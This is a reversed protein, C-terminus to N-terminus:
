PQCELHNSPSNAAGPPNPRALGGGLHEALRRSARPLNRHLRKREEYGASDTVAKLMWCPKGFSKAAWAVAAGEMDVLDGYVSLAARRCLDFVPDSVSVLRAGPLHAWPGPDLLIPESPANPDSPEHVAECVSFVAGERFGPGDVLAGCIGANVLIRIGSDALLKGAAAAAAAPGMGSISIRVGGVGAFPSEVLPWGDVHKPDADVGVLELFPAAERLTAFLLGIM